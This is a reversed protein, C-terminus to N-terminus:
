NSTNAATVVKQTLFKPVLCNLHKLYSGTGSNNTHLVRPFEMSKEMPKQGGNFIEPSFLESTEFLQRYWQQKHASSKSIGYEEEHQSTPKQGDKILEWCDM